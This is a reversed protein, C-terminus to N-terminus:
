LRANPRLVGPTHRGGHLIGPTRRLAETCRLGQVARRRRANEAGTRWSSDSRQSPVRGLWVGGCVSSQGASEIVLSTDSRTRAAM